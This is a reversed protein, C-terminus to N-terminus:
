NWVCEILASYTKSPAFGNGRTQLGLFKNAGGALLAQLAATVDVADVRPTMGTLEFKAIETINTPGSDMHVLRVGTASTAHNPTWVMLFRAYHLSMGMNAYLSITSASLAAGSFAWNTGNGSNLPTAADRYFVMDAPVRRAPAGDGPPLAAIIADVEEKTYM